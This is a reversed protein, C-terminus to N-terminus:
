FWPNGCKPLHALGVFVGMLRACAGLGKQADGSGCHEMNYGPSEGVARRIRKWHRELLSICTHSNSCSASWHLACVCTVAVWM